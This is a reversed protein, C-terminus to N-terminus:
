SCPLSYRFHWRETPAPLLILVKIYHEALNSTFLSHPSQITPTAPLEVQLLVTSGAVSSHMFITIASFMRQIQGCYSLLKPTLGKLALTSPKFPPRPEM